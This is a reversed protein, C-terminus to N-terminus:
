DSMVTETIILFGIFQPCTKARMIIKIETNALFWVNINVKQMQKTHNSLKLKNRWKLTLNSSIGIEVTFNELVVICIM